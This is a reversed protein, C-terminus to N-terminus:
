LSWRDMTKYLVLFSHKPDLRPWTVFCYHQNQCIFTDLCNVKQTSNGFNWSIQDSRGKIIRNHVTTLPLIINSIWKPWKSVASRQSSSLVRKHFFCSLGHICLVSTSYGLDQSSNLAIKSSHLLKWKYKKFHEHILGQVKMPTMRLYPQLNLILFILFIISYNLFIIMVHQNIKKFIKYNYNIEYIEKIIGRNKFTM